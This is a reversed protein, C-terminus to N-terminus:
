VEIFSYSHIKWNKDLKKSAIKLAKDLSYNYVVIDISSNTKPRYLKITFKISRSDESLLSNDYNFAWNIFTNYIRYFRSMLM